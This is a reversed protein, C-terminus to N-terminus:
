EVSFLSISYAPAFIRNLYAAWDSQAMEEENFYAREAYISAPDITQSTNVDPLCVLEYITRGERVEEVLWVLRDSADTGSHLFAGALLKVSDADSVHDLAKEQAKKIYDEPIEELTEYRLPLGEVVAEGKTNVPIFHYEAAMEQDWTSTITLVDGNSLDQDPDVDYEITELFTQLRQNLDAADNVAKVSAYGNEGTYELRLGALIDVKVDQLFAFYALAVLGSCVSLLFAFYILKTKWRSM